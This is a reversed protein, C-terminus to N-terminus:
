SLFLWYATHRTDTHGFNLHVSLFCEHIKFSSGESVGCKPLWQPVSHCLVVKGCVHLGASTQPWLPKPCSPSSIHLPVTDPPLHCLGYIPTITCLLTLISWCTYPSYPWLKHEAYKVCKGKRGRKFITKEGWM